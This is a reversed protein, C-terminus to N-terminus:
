YSSQLQKFSMHEDAVSGDASWWDVCILMKKSYEELGDAILKDALETGTCIKTEKLDTIKEKVGDGEKVRTLFHHWCKRIKIYTSNQKVTSSPWSQEKCYEM